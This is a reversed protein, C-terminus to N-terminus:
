GAQDPSVIAIAPQPGVYSLPFTPRGACDVQAFPPWLGPVPIPSAAERIVKTAARREGVASILRRWKSGREPDLLVPPVVPACSSRRGSGRSGNSRADQSCLTPRSRTRAGVSLAAVTTNSPADDPQNSGDSWPRFQFLGGSHDLPGNTQLFHLSSCGMM